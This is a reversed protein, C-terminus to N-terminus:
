EPNAELWDCTGKHLLKVLERTLETREQFQGSSPFDIKAPGNHPLILRILAPGPTLADGAHIGIVQESYSTGPKDTDLGMVYSRFHM